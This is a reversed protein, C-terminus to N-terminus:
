LQPQRARRVGALVVRGQRGAAPVHGEGREVVRVLLRAALGPAPPEAHDLGERAPLDSAPLQRAADAEETRGAAELETPEALVGQQGLAHALVAPPLDVAEVEGGEVHAADAGAAPG